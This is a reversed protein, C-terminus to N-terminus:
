KDYPKNINKDATHSKGAMENKVQCLFSVLDLTSGSPLMEVPIGLLGELSNLHKERTISTFEALM